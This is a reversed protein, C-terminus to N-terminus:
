GNLLDEVAAREERLETETAAMKSRSFDSVELGQVIEDLEPLDGFEFELDARTMAIDSLEIGDQLLAM